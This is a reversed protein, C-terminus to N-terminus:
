APHNHTNEERTDSNFRIHSAASDAEGKPSQVIQLMTHTVNVASKDYKVMVEYMTVVTTPYEDRDLLASKQLDEILGKYRHEDANHLLLLAKNNEEEIHISEVTATARENGTLGSSFFIHDGKTLEIATINSKFRDMCHKNSEHPGQRMHYLATIADQMNMRPNGKSNVGATAKKLEDLLWIVDSTSSKNEYRISRFLM